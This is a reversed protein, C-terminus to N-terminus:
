EGEREADGASTLASGTLAIRARIIYGDHHWKEAFYSDVYPRMEELGELADTLARKLRRVEAVLAPVNTRSAAIFRAIATIDEKTWSIDGETEVRAVVADLGDAWVLGCECGGRGAGCEHWPGSPIANAEAEIRELDADTLTM